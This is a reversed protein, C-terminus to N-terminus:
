RMAPFTLLWVGITFQGVFFISRAVVFTDNRGSRLSTSFDAEIGRWFDM